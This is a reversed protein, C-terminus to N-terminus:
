FLVGADSREALEHGAAAQLPGPSRQRPAFRDESRRPTTERAGPRFFTRNDVRFGDARVTINVASAEAFGWLPQEQTRQGDAGILWISSGRGATWIKIEFKSVPKGEEDIVRLPNIAGADAGPKKKGREKRPKAQIEVEPMDGEAPVTLELQSQFDAAQSSQNPTAARVAFLWLSYKGPPIPDTKFAGDSTIPIVDLATMYQVPKGDKGPEEGPAFYNITVHAYRLDEKELGRM